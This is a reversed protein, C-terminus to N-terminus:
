KKIGKKQIIISDSTTSSISYIASVTVHDGNEVLDDADFLAKDAHIEFKGPDECFLLSVPTFAHFKSEPVVLVGVSLGDIVPCAKGKISVELRKAFQIAVVSTITVGVVTFCASGKAVTKENKKYKIIVESGNVKNSPEGATATFTGINTPSVTGGKSGKMEGSVTTGSPQTAHTGKEIAGGTKVLVTKTGGPLTVGAPKDITVTIKDLGWVGSGAIMIMGFMLLKKM